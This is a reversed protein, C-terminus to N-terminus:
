RRRCRFTCRGHGRGHGRRPCRRRRHSPRGARPRGPGQDNRALIFLAAILQEAHDVAARIDVAMARLDSLTSDPNALVVDVTTRMVTLPTRLEHSANAIFHRQGEFAGELRDLMDDFTDALERLEDRPGTSPSGSRFTTSPDGGPSRCHDAGGAPPSSRGSDLQSHAGLVIVVALTLLSYQLLRSLTLAKEAHAGSNPWSRGPATRAPRPIRTEPWRVRSQMKGRLRGISRSRGPSQPVQVVGLQSVLIYSVAVM